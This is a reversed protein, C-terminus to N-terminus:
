HPCISFRLSSWYQGRTVDRGEMGTMVDNIFLFLDLKTMGECLETMGTSAPLPFGSGDRVKSMVDSLKMGLRFNVRLKQQGNLPVFLKKLM